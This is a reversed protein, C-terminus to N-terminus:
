FLLFITKYLLALYVNEIIDDLRDQSVADMNETTQIATVSYAQVDNAVARNLNRPSSQEVTATIIDSASAPQAPKDVDASENAYRNSKNFNLKYTFM